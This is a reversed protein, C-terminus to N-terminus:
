IAKNERLSRQGENGSTLPKMQIKKKKNQKLCFPLDDRATVNKQVKLSFPFFASKLGGTHM